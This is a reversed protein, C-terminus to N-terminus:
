REHHAEELYRDMIEQAGHEPVDTSILCCVIDGVKVPITAVGREWDFSFPHIVECGQAQLHQAVVVARGYLAAMFAQKALNESSKSAAADPSRLAAKGFARRKRTTPRSPNKKYAVRLQSKM